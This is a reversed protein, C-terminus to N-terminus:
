KHDNASPQVANLEKGDRHEIIKLIREISSLIVSTEKSVQTPAVGFFAFFGVCILPALSAYRLASSATLARTSRSNLKEFKVTFVPNEHDLGKRKLSTVAAEITKRLQTILDHQSLHIVWMTGAFTALSILLMINASSLGGSPQVDKMALLIAAPITLGKAELGAIIKELTESYSLASARAEDALKEPSHEALYIAMGEKLQRNLVQTNGLLYPFAQDPKQDRLIDSLVALFIERRTDKRDQDAIFALIPAIWHLTHLDSKNFGPSLEIRRIGFFLICGSENVHDALNKITEWLSLAQHYLNLPSPLAGTDDGRVFTIISSTQEVGCLVYAAPTAEHALPLSLLDDFNRAVVLRDWRRPVALKCSSGPMVNGVNGGDYSRQIEIDDFSVVFDEKELARLVTFNVPSRANSLTLENFTDLVPKDVFQAFLSVLVEVIERQNM